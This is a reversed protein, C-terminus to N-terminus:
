RERSEWILYVHYKNVYRVRPSSELSLINFSSKLRVRKPLPISLKYKRLM